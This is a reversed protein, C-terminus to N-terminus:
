GKPKADTGSVLSRNAWFEHIYDYFGEAAKCDCIRALDYGARTLLVRGVALINNEEQPLVLDLERDYYHATLKKPLKQLM